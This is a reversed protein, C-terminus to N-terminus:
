KQEKQIKEVKSAIEPEPEKTAERVVDAACGLPDKPREPKKEM